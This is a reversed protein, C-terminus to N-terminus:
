RAGRELGWAMLGRAFADADEPTIPTGAKAAAEIGDLANGSVYKEQEARSFSNKNFNQELQTSFRAAAGTPLRSPKFKALRLM